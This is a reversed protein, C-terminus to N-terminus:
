RIERTKVCKKRKKEKRKKKKCDVMHLLISSCSCVATRALQTGLRGDYASSLDPSMKVPDKAMVATASVVELPDYRFVGLKNSMVQTLDPSIRAIAPIKWKRTHDSNADSNRCIKDGPM